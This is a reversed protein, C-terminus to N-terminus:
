DDPAHSGARGTAMIDVKVISATIQVQGPNLMWTQGTNADYLAATINGARQSVFRMLQPSFPSPTHGYAVRYAFGSASIGIAPVEMDSLASGIFPADGFTFIGGDRGVLWYGGGDPTAAMGVIPKNLTLSGTSGFFAANGFAFIGGDSAVLWYGGGDPTAAMGVIPKNLTLSGTSGFFPSDFSFIGGDAGVTWYGGTAPDGAMGVIPKNLTLSGTSGHFTADGFTFIGGDRGVLWYGAGDATTAMGVLPRNLSQGSLDGLPTVGFAQVSNAQVAGAAGAATVTHRLAPLASLVGSLLAIMGVCIAIPAALRQSM